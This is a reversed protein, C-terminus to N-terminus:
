RQGRGSREARVQDVLGGTAQLNARRRILWRYPGSTASPAMLVYGRRSKLEGVHLGDVYLRRNANTGTLAFLIHRGGRGTEALPTEPLRRGGAYDRLRSLHEAEIDFADFSEGAIVGINFARGRWWGTIVAQDTTAIAPWSDGFAPVKAREAVPFVRWGLGAYALAADLAATPTV